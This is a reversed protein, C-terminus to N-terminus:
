AVVWMYQNWGLGRVCGRLGDQAVPGMEQAGRQGDRRGCYVDALTESPYRTGMNCGEQFQGIRDRSRTRRGRAQREDTVPPPVQHQTDSATNHFKGLVPGTWRFVKGTRIRPSKPRPM